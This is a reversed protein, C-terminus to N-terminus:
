TFIFLYVPIVSHYLHALALEWLAVRGFFYLLRADLAVTLAVAPEVLVGAPATAATARPAGSTIYNPPSRGGM